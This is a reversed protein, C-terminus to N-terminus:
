WYGRTRTVFLYYDDKYILVIPEGGRRARESGVIVDLPNCFTYPYDTIQVTFDGSQVEKDAKEAVPTCSIGALLVFAVLLIGSKLILKIM